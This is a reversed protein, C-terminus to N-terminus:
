EHTLDIIERGNSDGVSFCDGTHEIYDGDDDLIITDPKGRSRLKRRGQREISVSTLDGDADADADIVNHIRKRKSNADANKADTVDSVVIFDLEESTPELGSVGSLYGCGRNNYAREEAAQAAMERPTNNSGKASGVLASSCIHRTRIPLKSGPRVGLARGKGIFSDYLGRQEIVWQRGRLDDLKSYFRKDHKGFLNHTLEHLMTELISDRPLFRTEDTAERLRLMIKSGHNVNMGLLRGENPYFEVLQGVTFREEKMLYSVRHVMEMLLSLADEKRPKGQLVALNNIHQNTRINIGM